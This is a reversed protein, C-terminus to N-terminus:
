DEDDWYYDDDEFHHDQNWDEEDDWDEETEYDFEEDFLDDDKLEYRSKDDKKFKSLKTKPDTRM